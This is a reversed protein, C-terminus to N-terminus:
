PAKAHSTGGDIPQAHEGGLVDGGAPFDDLVRSLSNVLALRHLPEVPNPLGAPAVLPKAKKM